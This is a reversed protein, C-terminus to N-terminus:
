VFLLLLTRNLFASFLLWFFLCKASTTLFPLLLRANTPNVVVNVEVSYAQNGDRSIMKEYQSEQSLHNDFIIFMLSAKTITSTTM